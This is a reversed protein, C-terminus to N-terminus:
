SIGRGHASATKSGGADRAPSSDGATATFGGVRVPRSRRPSCFLGIAPERRGRCLPRAADRRGHRLRLRPCDAMDFKGSRGPPHQACSPGTRNAAARAEGCAASLEVFSLFNTKALISSRVREVTRRSLELRRQIAKNPHGALILDLTRREREDLSELRKGLDLRDLKQRRAAITSSRMRSPLPRNAM